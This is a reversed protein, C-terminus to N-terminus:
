QQGAFLHAIQAAELANGYIRVDDILGNLKEGEDPDFAGLRVYRTTAVPIVNPSADILRGDEYMKHLTGDYSYAIHHWGPVATTASSLIFRADWLWVTMKGNELGIQIAEGASPNTIAVVNKRGTPSVSVHFWAAVTIPKGIAPLSRVGLEVWGRGDLALAGGNPFKAAPFGRGVRFAAGDLLMGPNLGREDGAVAGSAEDLRWHGLATPLVPMTPRDVTAMDVVIGGDASPALDMTIPAADMDVTPGDPPASGADTGMAVDDAAVDFPVEATDPEGVDPPQPPAM